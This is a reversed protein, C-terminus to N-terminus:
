HKCADFCAGCAICYKGHIHIADKGTSADTVAHNVTLTPCVSICKNCAICTDTTFVLQKSLDNM